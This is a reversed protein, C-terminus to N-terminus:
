FRHEREQRLEITSCLGEQAPPSSPGNLGGTACKRNMPVEATGQAQSCGLQHILQLLQADADSSSSSAIHM